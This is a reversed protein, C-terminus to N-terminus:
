LWLELNLDYYGGQEEPYDGKEIREIIKPLAQFFEPTRSNPHLTWAQPNALMGRYYDTQELQTSVLVEWSHLKGKRTWYNLFTQFNAPLKDMFSNRYPMWIIPFPLLQDLRKRKILYARSGFFKFRYYNGDGKHYAMKQDFTGDSRPPGALPRIAMLESHNEMVEIGEKIWSHEPTQYLMMDSDFHLIYDSKCEEIKFISGYIPYGKYNHTEHMRANFHKEYFRNILRPNYDIDIVRDVVGDELLKQCNERLQEMTGIHPRMTKEGSLPATDITLVKEEFPFHSMRVLHPITHMMFSVDTRAVFMWLSCSPFTM